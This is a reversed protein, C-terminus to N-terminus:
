CAIRVSCTNRWGNGHDESPKPPTWKWSWQFQVAPIGGTTFDGVLIVNPNRHLNPNAHFERLVLQDMEKQNSAFVYTLGCLQTDSASSPTSALNQDGVLNPSGDYSQRLVCTFNFTLEEDNTLRLLFAPSATSPPEPDKELDTCISLSSFSVPGLVQVYEIPANDATDRKAQYRIAPFSNPTLAVLM